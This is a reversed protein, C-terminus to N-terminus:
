AVVEAQPAADGGPGFMAQCLAQGPPAVLVGQDRRGTLLRQLWGLHGPLERYALGFLRAMDQGMRRQHDRYLSEHRILAVETYAKLMQQCCWLADEQGLLPVSRYYESYPTQGFDVWGPSLYFTGGQDVGAGPPLHGLLLPICDHVRPAVLRARRGRLGELGGGCYGYGLIVTRVAPDRELQALALAVQRRLDDPHRHLGQDLYLAQHDEVGLLRLEHYLVKCALVRCHPPLKM